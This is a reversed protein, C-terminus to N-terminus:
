NSGGVNAGTDVSTSSYDVGTIFKDSTITISKIATEGSDVAPRISATLLSISGPIGKISPCKIDGELSHYVSSVTFSTFASSKLDRVVNTSVGGYVYTLKNDNDATSSGAVKVPDSSAHTHIEHSTSLLSKIATDTTSVDTRVYGHTHAFSHTHADINHIHNFGHQHGGAATETVTLAVDERVSKQDTRPANLSAVSQSGSEITNVVKVTNSGTITKASTVASGSTFSLIGFEDVVCANLFSSTNADSWATPVTYSSTKVDILVKTQLDGTNFSVSTVVKAAYSISTVVKGSGTKVSVSHTHNEVDSTKLNDGSTSGSVQIGTAKGSANEGTTTTSAADTVAKSSILTKIFTPTESAGTVYNVSGTSTIKAAVDVSATDHKHPTYEDTSLSTYAAISRSVISTPTFSVTHKHGVDGTTSSTTLVLDNVGDNEYEVSTLFTGGVSTIVKISAGAKAVTYSTEVPNYSVLALSSSQTLTPLNVTHHHTGVQTELVTLYVTDGEVKSVWRDFKDTAELLVIDGVKYGGTPTKDVLSNIISTTTSMTTATSDVIANYESILSSTSEIENIVYTDVVGHIMSTVDSFRHGEWLPADITYVNNSDTQIQRIVKNSDITINDM